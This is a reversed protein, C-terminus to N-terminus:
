FRIHRPFARFSSEITLHNGVRASNNDKYRVRSKTCSQRSWKVLLGHVVWVGYGKLFERESFLWELTGHM